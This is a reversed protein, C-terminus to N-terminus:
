KIFSKNLKREMDQVHELEHLAQGRAQWYISETRAKKSQQVVRAWKKDTMSELVRLLIKRRVKFYVLLEEFPLMDLRLLKGLDREPHVDPLLPEDTLLALYIAQSTVAECHLMHALVETPTREGHSLPVRLQEGSLQRSMADLRLPTEALLRIVERINAENQETSIQKKMFNMRESIQM